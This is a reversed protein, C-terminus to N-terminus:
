TTGDTSPQLDSRNARSLQHCHNVRLQESGWCASDPWGLWAESLPLYGLKPMADRMEGKREGQGNLFSDLPSVEIKKATVTLWGAMQM